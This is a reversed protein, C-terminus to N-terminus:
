KVVEKFNVRVEGSMLKPLLTDRLSQLTRIQKSNTIQKDILPQIENTMLEIEEPSPVLVMADDLDGRKIHGMTTAHSSSISVFEALHHKSWLYYYWKPFGDSTVKFLHQNLICKDGDWIKVILSASWSFVVDGNEIIYEPKVETTCWDSDDSFGNRLQKIKLVPLKDVENKPPFKQCALGNLFNAVSSLPKVGWDEGAEVVFWQRFLTEAMQELTKNQRHLLDIKDDLSSLVEAIAKQEPLPPLNIEISSIEQFNINPQASQGSMNNIYDVMSPQSLFKSIYYPLASDQNIRLIALAQNTNAPLMNKLVIGNKGLYAGAMSFLIDLEELQSRKFKKHTGEDIAVFKNIDIKGDYNIADSKIYNIGKDVFGKGKPPTTGKTILKLLSGLGVERWEGNSVSVTDSM